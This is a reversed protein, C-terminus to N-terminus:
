IIPFKNHGFNATNFRPFVRALASDLQRDSLVLDVSDGHVEPLFDILADLAENANTGVLLGVKKFLKEEVLKVVVQKM